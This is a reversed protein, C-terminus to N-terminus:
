SRGEGADRESALQEVERAFDDGRAAYSEYMDLSACAPSLLVTDGARARSAAARVADHMTAARTVPVLGDFVAEVTATAEGIAVVARLRPSFRRLQMLDRSRDRGGAILVVHELGELAGAAAHGNTAKSDDVYRVGGVDAVLQFRHPLGQWSALVRAVAPADAGAEISAAAAALANDLEHPARVPPVPAVSGVPGVIDGDRVGYGGPTPAGRTCRIVRARARTALQAAVTDDANVVLADDAGQHAFVRAKADAYAAVSDHWDIHDQAVNLLVSVDPVFADTTFELQFTSVEAVVVDAHDDAAAIIPPGINGVAESRLGAEACMAAVMTTVTTKGNTGTVAVLRPPQPRARLGDFALDVESRVPVGAALAAATAPHDPRVGPSPVVLDVSAARAALVEPTAEELLEVGAARVRAARAEYAAGSPHDEAVVVADGAARAWEVVAAGTVGLGIVLVRRMEREM